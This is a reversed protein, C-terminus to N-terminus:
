RCRARTATKPTAPATISLPHRAWAAPERRQRPSSDRPRASRRSCSHCVHKETPLWCHISTQSFSPPRAGRAMRGTHTRPRTRPWGGNRRALRNHERKTSKGSPSAIHRINYKSHNLMKSWSRTLSCPHLCRPRVSPEHLVQVPHNFLICSKGMVSVAGRFSSYDLFSVVRADRCWKCMKVYFVAASGGFVGLCCWCLSIESVAMTLPYNAHPGALEYLIQYINSIYRKMGSQGSKSPCLPVSNDFFMREGMLDRGNMEYVADDADRHDDFEVFGFGNKIVIDRLRGYGRFFRELDKEGVRYSLGGVYVRTGVM